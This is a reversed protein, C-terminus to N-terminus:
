PKQKSFDFYWTTGVTYAIGDHTDRGWIYPEVVFFLDAFRTSYSVGGTAHWYGCRSFAIPKHRKIPRLALWWNPFRSVATTRRSCRVAM